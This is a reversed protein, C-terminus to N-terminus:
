YKSWKNSNYSNIVLLKDKNDQFFKVKKDLMQENPTKPYIQEKRSDMLAKESNSMAPKIGYCNVGFRVNPNAFYGGNVGPRGLDHEHGKVKQLSAWTDKQTPFYAHQGDSWGYSTWEAGNQYADEIQDYTALQADFSKCVKTADDFTFLNNSINFVENQPLPVDTVDPIDSSTTATTSFMNYIMDAIRIGFVEKFFQVAALVILLLFAKSELITILLSKEPYSMPIKLVYVGTYFLIIFILVEAISFSNNFYNRTGKALDAFFTSKDTESLNLYYVTSILFIISLVIIDITGGLASHFNPDDRKFFMGSIAYISFYIGLFAITMIMTVSDYYNDNASPIASPSTASLTISPKASPTPKVSPSPKVKARRTESPFTSTTASM